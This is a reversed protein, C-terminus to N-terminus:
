HLHSLRAAKRLATPSGQARGKEEPPGAFRVEAM